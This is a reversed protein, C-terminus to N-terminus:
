LRCPHLVSSGFQESGIQVAWISRMLRFNRPELNLHTEGKIKKSRKEIKKPVVQLRCFKRNAKFEFWNGEIWKKILKAGRNTAVEIMRCRETSRHFMRSSNEISTKPQLRMFTCSIELWVKSDSCNSCRCSTREILENSPHNDNVLIQLSTLNIARDMDAVRGFTWGVLTNCSAVNPKSSRVVGGNAPLLSTTRHIAGEWIFRWISLIEFQYPPEIRVLIM